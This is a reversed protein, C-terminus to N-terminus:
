FLMDKAWIEVDRRAQEHPLSYRQQLRAILEPLTRIEAYDSSTLRDWKAQATRLRYANIGVGAHAPDLDFM